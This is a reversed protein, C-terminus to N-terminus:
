GLSSPLAEQVKSPHEARSNRTSECAIAPLTLPVIPQFLHTYVVNERREPGIDFSELSHVMERLGM